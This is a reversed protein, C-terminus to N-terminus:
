RAADPPGIGQDPMEPLLTIGPSLRLCAMLDEDLRRLPEVHEGKRFFQRVIPVQASACAWFFSENDIDSEWSVHVSLRYPKDQVVVQITSYDEVVETSYGWRPLQSALWDAPPRSAIVVWDGTDLDFGPPPEVEFAPARFFHEPLYTKM